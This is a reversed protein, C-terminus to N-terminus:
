PKDDPERKVSIRNVRMDTKEGVEWGQKRARKGGARGPATEWEFLSENMWGATRNLVLPLIQKRWM